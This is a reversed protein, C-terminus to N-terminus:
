QSPGTNAHYCQVSYDATPNHVCQGSLLYSCESHRRGLSVCSGAALLSHALKGIVALKTCISSWLEVKIALLGFLVKRAKRAEWRGSRSHMGLGHGVM